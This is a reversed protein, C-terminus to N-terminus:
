AAPKVAAVQSGEVSSVEIGPPRKTRAAFDAGFTTEIFRAQHQMRDAIFAETEAPFEFPKTVHVKRNAWLYNEFSKIGLFKEVRRLFGEPDVAIDGYPLFLIRNAPFAAQWLPVFQAYDGRLELEPASAWQEWEMPTTPHQKTRSVRMRLQSLAREAPDRIIYIIRADGLMNKVYTVGEAPLQSYGPTVEGLTKGKAARWDFVRRYWAESFVERVGMNALYRVYQFDFRGEAHNKAYRVIARQASSEISLKTWKRDSEVFLHNFFQLEKVPPMWVDPHQSLNQHLWSTGAKVAGICLFNPLAM